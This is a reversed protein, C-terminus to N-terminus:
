FFLLPVTVTVDGEAPIVANFSLTGAADLEDYRARFSIEVSVSGHTGTSVFGSATPVLAVGDVRASLEARNQMASPIQIRLTM